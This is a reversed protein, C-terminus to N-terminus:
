LYWECSKHYKSFLETISNYLNELEIKGDGDYKNLAPYTHIEHYYYKSYYDFYGNENVWIEDVLQNYKEILAKKSEIVRLKIYPTELLKYKPFAESYISKMESCLSDHIRIKNYMFSDSEIPQFTIQIELPNSEYENNILSKYYKNKSKIDIIGCYTFPEIKWDPPLIGEIKGKYINMQELVKADTCLSPASLREILELISNLITM